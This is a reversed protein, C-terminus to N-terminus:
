SPPRWSITGVEGPYEAGEKQRWEFAVDIPLSLKKAIWYSIRWAANADVGQISFPLDGVPKFGDDTKIGEVLRAASARRVAEYSGLHTFAVEHTLQLLKAWNPRNIEKNGLAARVLRTHTLNPPDTPQFNREVGTPNMSRESGTGRLMQKLRLVLGDVDTQFRKRFVEWNQRKVLPKLPEPLQEANPMPTDLLVPVVPIERQLATVIEIRVFDNPDDLRQNLWRPGIVALLIRCSAVQEQLYKEFDHGIPVSDIDLFVQHPALADKLAAFLRDVAHPDDDRRYSILVDMM